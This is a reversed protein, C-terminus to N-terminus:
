PIITLTTTSTHVTGAPVTCRGSPDGSGPSYSYGSTFTDIWTVTHVGPALAGAPILYRFETLWVPLAPLSVNDVALAVYRCPQTIIPMPAGDIAFTTTQAAAFATCDAQSGESEGIRLIISQTTLALRPAFFRAQCVSVSPDPTEWPFACVPPAALTHLYANTSEGSAVGAVSVLVAM